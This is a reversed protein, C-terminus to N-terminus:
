ASARGQRAAAPRFGHMPSTEDITQSLDCVLAKTALLHRVLRLGTGPEMGLRLDMTECFPHLTLGPYAPVERLILAAKDAVYGDCIQTLDDIFAGGHIWAINSVITKPLDRETVIGWEVGQEAWYRREIELKEIVRPKGLEASPKVARALLVVRGDQITDVLFDTTMVLPTQSERDQPHRVGMQEAIRQTVARDLPFQERIDEVLDSWDLLYFLSVELDSLLHHTRRNKLGSLRHSRGLSPVDGVKLWPTYDVGRGQGRGEKHYRAIKDEDFSYRRRAM